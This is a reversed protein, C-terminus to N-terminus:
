TKEGRQRLAQVHGLEEQGSLGARGKGTQIVKNGGDEQSRPGPINIWHCLKAQWCVNGFNKLIIPKQLELKDTAIWFGRCIAVWVVM